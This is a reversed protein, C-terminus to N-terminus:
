PSINTSITPLQELADRAKGRRAVAFTSGALTCVRPKM